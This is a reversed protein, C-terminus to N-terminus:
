KKRACSAKGDYPFHFRDRVTTVVLTASARGSCILADLYDVLDKGPAGRDSAGTMRPDAIALLVAHEGLATRLAWLISAVTGEAITQGMGRRALLPPLKGEPLTPDLYQGTDLDLAYGLGESIAVVRPVDRGERASLAVQGWFTAWGELWATRPSLGETLLHDRDDDDPLVSYVAMVWHGLEHAIVADTWAQSLSDSGDVFIVSEFRRKGVKVSAGEYCAMCAFSARPSWLIALSPIPKPPADFTRAAFALTFSATEFLRLAGAGEGITVTRDGDGAAPFTWSWIGPSTREQGAARAVAHIPAGTPDLEEATFVLEAGDAHAKPISARYEGTKGTVGTAIVENHVVVAFPV